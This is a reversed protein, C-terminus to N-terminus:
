FIIIISMLTKERNLAGGGGGKRGKKLARLDSFFRAYIKCDLSTLYPYHASRGASPVRWHWCGKRQAETIHEKFNQSM